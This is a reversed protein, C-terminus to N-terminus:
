KKILKLETNLLESEQNKIHKSIRYFLEDFSNIQRDLQKDYNHWVHKSDSNWQTRGDILILVIPFTTGQKRYLDGSIYIIDVINYQRHLYAIFDRYQGFLKIRQKIIRIRKQPLNVM